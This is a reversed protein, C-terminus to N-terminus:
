KVACVIVFREAADKPFNTKLVIRATVPSATTRPVISVRYDRGDPKAPPHLTVNFAGAPTIDFGTIAVPRDKLVVTAIAQKETGPANKKWFVFAPKISLIRPISTQFFAVAERGDSTKVTITKRQFGTREGVTFVLQIKGTSGPAYSEADAVGTTCDCGTKINTILLVGGSAEVRFPLDAKVLTQGAECPAIIRPTEFVIGGRLIAPALMLLTLPLLKNKV